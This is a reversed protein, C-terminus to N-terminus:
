GQSEKKGQITRPLMFWWQGHAKMHGAMHEANEGAGFFVDGRVPGRIAGGTDQAIMLRQMQPHDGPVGDLDVWVPIGYAIKSRDVAISRLPTLAVNEGGLPGPGTLEHFFIYSPNLNMLDQAADPHQDMWARISQLSVSDKDLEGRRILERGVAYYVHGNQAAYGVRLEDGNDLAVRGSGQIHLFFADVPDDVYVLALADDNPLAGRVIDARSEYPRLRGDVVRGAIRQGKLSERFDGLEVMVLDDPRKRLPTQYEGARVKAGRLMPEYYGTFLGKAGDGGDAVAHWPNFYHEIWGRMMGDDVPLNRCPDQWDAFTGFAPDPGFARAPDPVRLIRECSLRMAVLAGSLDDGDWGPVDGWGVPTLLLSLTAPDPKEAVVPAATECANLFLLVPLILALKKM